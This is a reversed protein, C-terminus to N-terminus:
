EFNGDCSSADTDAFELKSASVDPEPATSISLWLGKAIDRVRELLAGAQTTALMAVGAPDGEFRCVGCLLLYKVGADLLFIICTSVPLDLSVLFVAGELIGNCVGPPTSSIAVGVGHRLLACTGGAVGM